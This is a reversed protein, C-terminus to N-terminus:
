GADAQSTAPVLRLAELPHDASLREWDSRWTGFQERGAPIQAAFERLLEEIGSELRPWEPPIIQKVRDRLNELRATGVVADQLGGLSEQLAEVAPYLDAKFPPAFCEAFVEMAYRVRKGLIRLQHLESLGDPNAGVAGDFTEFLEGLHAAALDGFTRPVDDDDPRRVYGPLVASERAFGPGAERAAQELRVQAGAREGVAHGLLFDLAPKAGAAASQQHTLLRDLFVDWDRADGAARRLTRLSDKAAARRKRPLWVGFIRLAAGARRTGVRLQHVHEVDEHPRGAALPLYQRVVEFRAALVVRAADEVAMEPTLGHIWKGDAM